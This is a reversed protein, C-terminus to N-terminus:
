SNQIQISLVLYVTRAGLTEHTSQLTGQQQVFQVFSYHTTTGSPPHCHKNKKHKCCKIESSFTAKLASRPLVTTSVAELHM